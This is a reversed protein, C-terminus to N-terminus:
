LRDGAKSFWRIGEETVVGDLPVDWPEIPISAAEQCAYAVGLLVPTRARPRPHRFAFSRDYFGGGMGMRHGDADFGLLPALVLDLDRPRQLRRTAVIPEPIRFRNLALRDGPRYRGFWLGPEPGPRLVPLYLRRRRLVDRRLLGRLDVEAGVALYLGIRRSRRLM